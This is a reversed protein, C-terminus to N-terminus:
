RQQEVVRATVIVLTVTKGAKGDRRIAQVHPPRGILTVAVGSRALAAGYYSGVAGAGLVAVSRPLFAARTM